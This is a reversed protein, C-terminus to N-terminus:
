WWHSCQTFKGVEKEVIIFKFIQKILFIVIEVWDTAEKNYM